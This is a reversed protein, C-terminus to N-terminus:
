VNAYIGPLAHCQECLSSVSRSHHLLRLCWRREVTLFCDASYQALRPDTLSQRLFVEGDHHAMGLGPDGKEFGTLPLRAQAIKQPEGLNQSNRVVDKQMQAFSKLM